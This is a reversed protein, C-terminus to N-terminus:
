QRSNAKREEKKEHKDRKTYAKSRVYRICFASLYTPFRLVFLWILLTTWLEITCAQANKRTACEIECGHSLNNRGLLIACDDQRKPGIACNIQCDVPSKGERQTTRTRHEDRTGQTDLSGESCQIDYRIPVGKNPKAGEQAERERGTRNVMGVERRQRQRRSGRGRQPGSGGERTWQEGAAVGPYAREKGGRTSLGAVQDAHGAEPPLVPLVQMEAERLPLEGSPPPFRSLHDAIQLRGAGSTTERTSRRRREGGGRVGHTGGGGAGASLTCKDDRSNRGGDRRQRGQSDTWDSRVQKEREVGLTYEPKAAQQQARSPASERKAKDLLESTRRAEEARYERLRECDKGHACACLECWRTQENLILAGRVTHYTRATNTKPQLTRKHYESYLTFRKPGWKLENGSPTTYGFECKNTAASTRMGRVNVYLQQVTNVVVGKLDEREEETGRDKSEEGAKRLVEQIQRRMAENGEPASVNLFGSAVAPLVMVGAWAQPGGGGRMRAVCGLNAEDEASRWITIQWVGWRETHLENMALAEELGEERLCEVPLTLKYGKIFLPLEAGEPTVEIDWEAGATPTTGLLRTFHAFIDGEAPLGRESAVVISVDQTEEPTDRSSRSSSRTQVGERKKGAPTQEGQTGGQDRNKEQERRRKRGADERGEEEQQERMRAAQHKRKERAERARQEEKRAAVRQKARLKKGIQRAQKHQELQEELRSRMNRIVREEVIINRKSEQYERHLKEKQTRKKRMETEREKRKARRQEAEEGEEEAESSTPDVIEGLDRVQREYIAHRAARAHELTERESQELKQEVEKWYLRREKETGTKGQSDESDESLSGEESEHEAGTRTDSSAAGENVGVGEKGHTHEEEREMDGQTDRDQPQGPPTGEMSTGDGGTSEPAGQTDPADTDTLNAFDPQRQIDRHTSRSRTRTRSTKGM